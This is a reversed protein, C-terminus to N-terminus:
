GFGNSVKATKALTQFHAHRKGTIRLNIKTVQKEHAHQKSYNESLNKDSKNATQAQDNKPEVEVLDPKRFFALKM